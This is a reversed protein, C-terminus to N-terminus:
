QALKVPVQKHKDTQQMLVLLWVLYFSQEWTEGTDIDAEHLFISVNM